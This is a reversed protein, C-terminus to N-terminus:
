EDMELSMLLLDEGDTITVDYSSCAPCAFENKELESKKGCEKCEIVIKQDIVELDATQAITDLKFTDFATKLLACEINSLRGIKVVIKTIKTCEHASANQECLDLLNQVISYEHM